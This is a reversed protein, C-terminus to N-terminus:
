QAATLGCFHKNFTFIVTSLWVCFDSSSNFNFWIFFFFNFVFCSFFFMALFVCSFYEWVVSVSSPVFSVFNVFVFLGHVSSCVVLLLVTIYNIAFCFFVCLCSQFASISICNPFNLRARRPCKDNESSVKKKTGSERERERKEYICLGDWEGFLFLIYLPCFNKKKKKMRLLLAFLSLICYLFFVVVVVVVVVFQIISSFLRVANKRNQRAFM